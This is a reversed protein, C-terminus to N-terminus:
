IAIVMVVLLALSKVSMCMRQSGDVLQVALNVLIIALTVLLMNTTAIM